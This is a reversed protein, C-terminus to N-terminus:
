TGTGVCRNVRERCSARGIEGGPSPYYMHDHMGVLGPIITRGGLDLVKAGEPIKTSAADDFASIKGNTIVTQDARPAAGTGEIILDSSCVDSSWDGYSRTHRR